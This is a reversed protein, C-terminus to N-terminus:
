ITTTTITNTNYENHTTDGKNNIYNQTIHTIQTNHRITTGNGGPLFGNETLILLLLLIYIISLNPWSRKKGM